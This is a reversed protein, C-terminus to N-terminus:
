MRDKGSSSRSIYELFERLLQISSRNTTISPRFPLSNKTEQQDDKCGKEGRCIIQTKQNGVGGVGGGGGAAGNLCRLTTMLAMMKGCCMVHRIYLPPYSDPNSNPTLVYSEMKVLSM